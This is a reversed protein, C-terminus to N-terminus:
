KGICFRSFIIDLIDDVTKIFNNKTLNNEELILAADKKVLDM